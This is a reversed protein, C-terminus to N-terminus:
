VSLLPAIEALLKPGIGRVAGLGEVSSYPGSAERHAVIREALVPGIGPLEDLDTVTALNVDLRGDALWAGGGAAGGEAGVGLRPVLLREGDTLFRALNLADLDADELAGGAAALADAVRAEGPLTVLGPHHVAGAVHVVLPIPAVDVIEAPAPGTRGSWWLWGLLLCGGVALLALGRALSSDLGRWADLVRWALSPGVTGRSRWSEMRRGYITGAGRLGRPRQGQPRAGLTVIVPRIRGGIRVNTAM